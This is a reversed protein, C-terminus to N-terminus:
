KEFDEFGSNDTCVHESVEWDPRLRFDLKTTWPKALAKPDEMTIDVQMSDAGTRKFREVVHLEDSHPHGDRDLWSKDNFGTTDVVLAGGEWRGVSHGMYSPTVDPSHQRGDVYIRRVTHDYEYLLIV